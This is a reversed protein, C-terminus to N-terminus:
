LWCEEKPGDAVMEQLDSAVTTHRQTLRAVVSSMCAFLMFLTCVVRRHFRIKCRATVACRYRVDSRSFLHRSESAAKNAQSPGTELTPRIYSLWCPARKVWIPQRTVSSKLHWSAKILIEASPQAYGRVSGAHQKANAHSNPM